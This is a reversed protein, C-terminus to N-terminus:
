TFICRKRHDVRCMNATCSFETEPKANAKVATMATCLLYIYNWLRPWRIIVLLPRLFLAFRFDPGGGSM